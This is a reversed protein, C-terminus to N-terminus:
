RSSSDAPEHDVFVEPTSLRSVFRALLIAFRTAKPFALKGSFGRKLLGITTKPVFVEAIEDKPCSESSLFCV